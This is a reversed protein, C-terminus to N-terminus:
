GLYYVFICFRFCGSGILYLGVLSWAPGGIVFLFFLLAGLLTRVLAQLTSLNKKM